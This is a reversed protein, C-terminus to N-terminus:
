TVAKVTHILSKGRTPSAVTDGARRGLLVRGFPSAPTVVLVTRGELTLELGGARPGLFCTQERGASELIVVAGLAIPEGPAFVPLTLANYIAISEHIEAVLRAQGEALYAAEQGRTDYKNEAKSEESTAEDRSTLAAQVQLAHDAELQRLIATRLASKDM